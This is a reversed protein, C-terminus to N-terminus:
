AGLTTRSASLSSLRQAPPLLPSLALSAMSAPSFWFRPNDLAAVTELIITAEQSHNRPRDENEGPM